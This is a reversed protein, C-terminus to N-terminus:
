RGEAKDLRDVARFLAKEAAQMEAEAKREARLAAEWKRKAAPSAPRRGDLKDDAANWARVANRYRRAAKVIAANLTAFDPM